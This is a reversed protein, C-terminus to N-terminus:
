ISDVILRVPFNIFSVDLGKYRGDYQHRISENDIHDASRQVRKSKRMAINLHHSFRLISSYFGHSKRLVNLVRM